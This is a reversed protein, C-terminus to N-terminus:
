SIELTVPKKCYNLVCHFHPTGILLVLSRSTWVGIIVIWDKQLSISMLHFRQHSCLLTKLQSINALLFHRTEILIYINNLALLRIDSLQAPDTRKVLKLNALDSICVGDLMWESELTDEFETADEEIEEEQEEDSNTSTLAYECIRHPHHDISLDSPIKVEEDSEEDYTDALNLTPGYEGEEQQQINTKTPQPQYLNISGKCLDNFANIVSSDGATISFSINQPDTEPTKLASSLRRAEIRVFDPLVSSSQIGDMISLYTNKIETDNAPYYLKDKNYSAKFEAFVM